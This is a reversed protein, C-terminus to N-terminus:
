PADALLDTAFMPDNTSYQVYMGKRRFKEDEPDLM